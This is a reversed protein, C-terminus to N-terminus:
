SGASAAFRLRPGLRGRTDLARVTWNGEAPTFMMRGNLLGHAPEFERNVNADRAGCRRCREIDIAFM